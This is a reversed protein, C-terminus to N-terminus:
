FRFTFQTKFGLCVKLLTEFFCKIPKTFHIQYMAIFTTQLHIIINSKNLFQFISLPYSFGFNTFEYIMLIRLGYIDFM